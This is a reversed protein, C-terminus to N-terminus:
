ERKRLDSARDQEDALREWQRAMDILTDRPPGSPVVNALKWCDRALERYEDARSAM